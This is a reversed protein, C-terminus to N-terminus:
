IKFHVLPDVSEQDEEGYCADTSKYLFHLDPVTNIQRYFNDNPLLDDPHLHYIIKPSYEKRGLM